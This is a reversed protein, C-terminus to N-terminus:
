FRVKQGDQFDAYSELLVRSDNSLSSVMLSDNKYGIIEIPSSIISSDKKILHIANNGVAYSPLLFNPSAEKSTPIEVTLYDNNLLETTTKGVHAFYTKQQTSVSLSQDERIIIASGILKENKLISVKDGVTIPTKPELSFNIELDKNKVISCIVTTGNIFSGTGTNVINIFGNFPAIFRRKSLNSQQSLLTYYTDTVGKATVLNQLKANSIVPLSPLKGSKIVSSFQQWTEKETPYEVQIDILLDTILRNFSALSAQFNNNLQNDTVFAILQGKKFKTGTKLSLSSKLTGKGEIAVAIESSYNVLGETYIKPITNKNQVLVSKVLPAQIVTVRTKSKEKNLLKNKIVFALLALLLFISLSVVIKRIM